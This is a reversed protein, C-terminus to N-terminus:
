ILFALEQQTVQNVLTVLEVSTAGLWARDVQFKVIQVLYEDQFMITEDEVGAVFIKWPGPLPPELFTLEMKKLDIARGKVFNTSDVRALRKAMALNYATRSEIEEIEATRKLLESERMRESYPETAPRAGVNSDLYLGPSGIVLEQQKFEGPPLISNEKSYIIAGFSSQLAAIRADLTQDVPTPDPVEVTQSSDPNLSNVRYEKLVELIADLVIQLYAEEAQDDTSFTPPNPAIPLSGLRLENLVKRLDFLEYTKPLLIGSGEIVERGTQVTFSLKDLGLQLRYINYLQYFLLNLTSGENVNKIAIKTAERKTTSLKETSDTKVENRTQSTVSRAAKNAIKQLDRTFQKTTLSTNTSGEASGSFGGYSGGVKASLSQMSSKESSSSVEKEMENALDVKDSITLDTISTATRRSERESTTSKEITIDRQEGPALNISQVLEGVAVESFHTTFSLSEEIFLRPLRLQRIGRKPRKIVIYKVLVQGRTFSQEYVPIMVACSKYFSYDAECQALVEELSRGNITRYESLVREFRFVNFRLSALEREKEIWPDLDPVFKRYKVVKARNSVEYPVKVIWRRSGWFWNSQEVLVNRFATTRWEIVTQYAQYLEGKKLKEETGDPFTFKENDSLALHYGLDQAKARLREIKQGVDVQVSKMDLYSSVYSSIEERSLFNPIERKAIIDANTSLSDGLPKLGDLEQFERYIVAAALDVESYESLESYDWEVAIVDSWFDLYDPFSTFLTKNLNYSNWDFKSDGKLQVVHIPAGPQKVKFYAIPFDAAVVAANIRSLDASTTGGIFGLKTEIDKKLYEAERDTSNVYPKKNNAVSMPDQIVSSWDIEVERSRSFPVRELSTAEAIPKLATHKILGQTNPDTIQLSASLKKSIELM